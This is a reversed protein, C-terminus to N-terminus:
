QRFFWRHWQGRSWRWTQLDPTRGPVPILFYQGGLGQGEHGIERPAVCRPYPREQRRPIGALDAEIRALQRGEAGVGTRDPFCLPLHAGDGRVEQVPAHLDGPGTSRLIIMLARLEPARTNMASKSSERAGLQRLTTSPWTFRFSAAAPTM